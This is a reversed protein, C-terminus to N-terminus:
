DVKKVRSRYIWEKPKEKLDQLRKMEEEDAVILWVGGHSVEEARRAQLLGKKMYSYLTPEPIMTKQSLERLTLENPLKNVADSRRKKPSIIGRRSLLTGIMGTTFRKQWKPPRWGEQNLVNAIEAFENGKERLQAVRDLLENYYSLQELKAVPRNFHHTSQHGGSWHIEVTVKETTGEVTVLVREILLRILEQREQVTTTASSWLAPIDSALKRIAERENVSLATPQEALFKVHEHKLKEEAALAEEWKKELNRTVLRNEPESANYQRYAREVEYHARELQREWHASLAKREQEINEAVRLSVELASPELAALVQEVVLEDLPTGVLSQCLKEGYSSMRMGCIYSLKSSSSAYRTTMRVGCRGCILLGSLLSSGQRPVGIGEIANAALQRQNREYQAWTIYAPLRDKLLVAWDSQKATTRGTSPRGPIKKRPDTPRRGYVYAGAYIPNHLLNGLTLRNPRRWTLEGKQLGSIERFPMCINHKVMYKLVANITAFQDFLEFVLDITSQAQEDIDKIIEGSPRTMYGMPLLLGLEGRRAKAKKGEIMRQKLVHLEAESMTGKLGLLLRDNYSAPDYIGDTDGILTRFLACVELLQYWDRCSRALRSMEIGLVIGVRDLGVEAVLRQFGPRGEANTGSRGLDDDIVLVRDAPWGLNYAKEVLGYQLKTSEGHREVQQLTSQRVYVIALRDHHHGQIKGNAILNMQQKQYANSM